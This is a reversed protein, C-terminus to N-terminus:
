YAVSGKFQEIARKLSDETSDDMDKSGEITELVDPASARMHDAFATEFDAVKEIPVEDLYGNVGCYLITVQNALSQPEYQPQKLLETLRAGRELQQRTTPDLDDTGFQAVAL